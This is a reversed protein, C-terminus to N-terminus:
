QRRDYRGMLAAEALVHGEMATTIKEKTSGEPLDLTTDLAYLRFFYRHEGNPPCPGMYGLAGASNAGSTGIVLEDADLATIIPDINFMVWHDFIGDTKISTPVDPDDVILVLSRTEAPVDVFILPPHVGLGDCTYEGPISQDHAFVPSEIKM